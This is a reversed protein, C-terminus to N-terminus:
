NRNRSPNLKKELSDLLRQKSIKGYAAIKFFKVKQSVAQLRLAKLGETVLRYKHNRSKKVWRNNNLGEIVEDFSRELTFEYGFNSYIKKLHEPIQHAADNRSLLHLLGQKDLGERHDEVCLITLYWFSKIPHTKKVEMCWKRVETLVEKLKNGDVKDGPFTKVSFSTTVDLLAYTRQKIEEVDPDYNTYDYAMFYPELGRSGKMRLMPSPMTKLNRRVELLKYIDSGFLPFTYLHVHVTSEGNHICSLATTATIGTDDVTSEPSFLQVSLRPLIKGKKLLQLSTNIESVTCGRRLRRSLDETLADAGVFAVKINASGMKKVIKETLGKPRLFCSYTIERGVKKTVADFYDCIRLAWDENINFTDDWVDIFKIEQNRRLFEVLEDVFFDSQVACHFDNGFQSAIACFLCGGRSKKAWVCARQLTIAISKEGYKVYAFIDKESLVASSFPTSVLTQRKPLWFVINPIELLKKFFDRSWPTAMTAQDMIPLLSFLVNEAPGRVIFDPAIDVTQNVFVFFRYLMINKYNNSAENGGLIIPASSINRLCWIVKPLIFLNASYPASILIVDSDSFGTKEFFNGLFDYGRLTLDELSMYISDAGIAEGCIAQYGLHTTIRKLTSYALSNQRTLSIIGIKKM